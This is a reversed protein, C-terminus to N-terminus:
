KDKFSINNEKEYNYIYDKIIKDNKEKESIAEENLLRDLLIRLVKIGGYKNIMYDEQFSNWMEFDSLMKITFFSGGINYREKVKNLYDEKSIDNSKEECKKIIEDLKQIKEKLEM